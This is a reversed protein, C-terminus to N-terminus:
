GLVVWGRRFWLLVILALLPVPYWGMDRWQRAEGPRTVVRGTTALRKGITTVDSPDVTTALLRADMARAALRLASGAEQNRPLMVLFTVPVRDQESAQFEALQRPAVDDTLVLISGGNGGDALVRNALGVAGALDDGPKPMVDPTLAQAMSVVISADHTPPLVLHASGAYAIL